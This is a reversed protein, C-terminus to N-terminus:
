ARRARELASAEEALVDGMAALEGLDLDRLAVPSCGWARALRVRLGTASDPGTSVPPRKPRGRAEEAMTGLDIDLVDDFDTLCPRPHVKRM